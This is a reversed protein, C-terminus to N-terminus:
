KELYLEALYPSIAPTLVVTGGPPPTTTPVPTPSPTGGILLISVICLFAIRIKRNIM